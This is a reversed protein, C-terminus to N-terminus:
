YESLQDLFEGTLDVGEYGTEKFDMNIKNDRRRALSGLPGERLTKWGFNQICKDKRGHTGSTRDM